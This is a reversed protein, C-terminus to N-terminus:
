TDGSRTVHADIAPWVSINIISRMSAEQITMMIYVRSHLVSQLKIHHVAHCNSISYYCSIVVIYQQSPQCVDM